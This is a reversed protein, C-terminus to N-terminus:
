VGTPGALQQPVQSTAPAQAGAAMGSNQMVGAVAPETGVGAGGLGNLQENSGGQLKEFYKDADKLGLQEFYDEILEKAKIKYGEQALAAGVVQDQVITIMERKANILDGENPLAMSEIDPIYDYSGSLDDPEVLLHGVEGGEELTFKPLTGQSTDVPYTETALTSPDINMGEFEPSSLLDITSEQVSTGGLGVKEFYRIADKGVIRIVKVQERPDSFLFQADMKHWFMMQKKLAEALFIQNFNDRASRQNATDRIETATKDSEGAVANSVGASTEGLAEQLASVLFRYTSVFEGVGASGLEFPVVDTSPDNMIWKEGPGFKLTHMQVGTSRIKIPTYLSINIADLYQCVLANIAKQLKEVPEIESLGYIDDDIPYYKLMVVPIQGHDYPNPIDRLIVGHKPAFTVWKENRYETVVEVTKFAVDRGLFDELNKISKNRSLYNSARTDGAAREKSLKDALIDINKYVPRGRAADNVNRLEQLTVYDRHQFWNKVTSYSPNPLCDRNTLPKFNPGDFFTDSKGEGEKKGPKIRREYHWKCLAFSAGYKRANMDMLAWKALLPMADVRENDDWQFDLLENCIRAGLADGGERPVLRGKPKNALLRATKEFIATFIRPDFVLSSYPWNSEVIHSRFLEDKKDFDRLRTDLDEISMDYHARVETFLDREEETGTPVIKKKM